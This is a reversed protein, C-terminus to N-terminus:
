GPGDGLAQRVLRRVSTRHLSGNEYLDVPGDDSLLDPRDALFQAQGVQGLCWAAMGRVQPDAHDLASTIKPLVDPVHNGCAAGLRGIAWLAGVRFRELDEEAMSSLLFVVIPIYDAGLQPRRRVIEAIAEPARWCQGGSEESILWHLRRLHNLVYEPDRRAVRDAALGMAEVARWAIQSDEEYTLSVLAGLVRKKRIAM